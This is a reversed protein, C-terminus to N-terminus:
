PDGLAGLFDALMSRHRGLNARATVNLLVGVLRPFRDRGCLTVVHMEVGIRACECVHLAERAVCGLQM